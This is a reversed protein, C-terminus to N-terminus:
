NKENLFIITRKNDLVRRDLCYTNFKYGNNPLNLANAEELLLEVGTSMENNENNKLRKYLYSMASRQEKSVRTYKLSITTNNIKKTGNEFRKLGNEIMLNTEM